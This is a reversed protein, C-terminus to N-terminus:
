KVTPKIWLAGRVRLNLHENLVLDLLKATDWKPCLIKTFLSYLLNSRPLVFKGSFLLLVFGVNFFFFFFSNGIVYFFEKRFWPFKLTNWLKKLIWLTLSLKKRQNMIQFVKKNWKLVMGMSIRSWFSLNLYVYLPYCKLEFLLFEHQWSLCCLLMDIGSITSTSGDMHYCLLSQHKCFFFTKWM